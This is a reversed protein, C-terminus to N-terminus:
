RWHSLIHGFYPYL